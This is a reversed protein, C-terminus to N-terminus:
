TLIDIETKEIYPESSVVTSHPPKPLNHLLQGGLVEGEEELKDCPRGAHRSAPELDGWEFYDVMRTVRLPQGCGVGAKILQVQRFVRCFPLQSFLQQQSHAM